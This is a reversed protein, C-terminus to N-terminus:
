SRIEVTASLNKFFIPGLVVFNHGFVSGHPEHM